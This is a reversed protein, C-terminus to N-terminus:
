YRGLGCGCWKVQIMTQTRTCTDAGHLGPDRLTADEFFLVPREWVDLYLLHNGAPLAPAMPFDAQNAYDFNKGLPQPVTGAKPMAQAVIGDVYAYGWQLAYTKTGDAASTIRVLGRDRPTGGVVVDRLVDDLRGKVIDALENWDADTLMRGQQQYVGSYRRAADFTDRSRQTKM